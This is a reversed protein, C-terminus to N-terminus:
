YRSVGRKCSHIPSVFPSFGVLVKQANEYALSWERSHINQLGNHALVNHTVGLFHSSDEESVPTVSSAVISNDLMWEQFAGIGPIWRKNMQAVDMKQADLTSQLNLIDNQLRTVTVNHESKFTTAEKQATELSSMLASIQECADTYQAKFEECKNQAEPIATQLTVNRKNARALDADRIALTSQLNAMEQELSSVKACHEAKFSYFTDTM